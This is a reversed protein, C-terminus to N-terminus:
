RSKVSIQFRDTVGYIDLLQKAYVRVRDSSINGESFYVSGKIPNAEGLLNYDDTIIPDKKPYNKKSTSKHITNKQVIEHFLSKDINHALSCIVCLLDRWTTVEYNNDEYIISEPTAGSMPTTLDSIPYVGDTFDNSANKAQYKRTRLLPPTLAKCAREALDRNRAEINKENWSTNSSLETTIKFQVNQLEKAKDHWPNNSIKSNYGQSIPTLNGICNLYKQSIKEANEAGMLHEIWWPSLTQPMIHEITVKNLETPANKTETEEIRLLVTKAYNIGVSNMLATKFEEDDPYRGSPMNSNSLEFYINEYSAQIAGSNLNELLQHIVSRLSGGGGSPSVIRYRIMFDSLLRLIKTLETSNEKYLKDFLYLYLPYIDDTKIYNLYKIIANIKPNPCEEFKLWRFYQAYKYMDKLIDIKLANNEIFHEKFMKYTKVETVDEFINIILYDRAFKSINNNSVLQEIKVWYDEYLREQEASTQALLLYNRILDAPTLKKGTSNIKEFVTQVANLDNEIQLNVDVVELKPITKYLDVPSIGCENILKLFFTYNKFVNNNKNEIPTKYIVSMFTNTDYSTQKLRVRFENGLIDNLLYRNNISRVTDDDVPFSDRLACLLLLITTIRQQGDVLILESYIAGDNKGKYYVINGLYHAKGKNYAEIIDQFLEECQEYNWEYNRQFPPIIFVKDLGGIFNLVTTETAKM